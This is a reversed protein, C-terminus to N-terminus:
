RGIAPLLFVVTNEMAFCQQTGTQLTPFAQTNVPMPSHGDYPVTVM